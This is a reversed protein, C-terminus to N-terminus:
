CQLSMFAYLPDTASLIPHTGAPLGELAARSLRTDIFCLSVQPAAAYDRLEKHWPLTKASALYEDNESTFTDDAPDCNATSIALDDVWGWMLLLLLFCFISKRKM